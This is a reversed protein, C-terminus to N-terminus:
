IGSKEHLKKLNKSIEEDYTKVGKITQLVLKKKKFIAIFIRQLYFFPLLIPLKKIIPNRVIMYKIPPFTKKLYYKFKSNKFNNMGDKGLVLEIAQEHKISGHTGSEFIYKTMMEELETTEQHNFWKYTLNKFNNAFKLLGIKEFESDIYEFNLEHEYKKLYIWEDFVFRIGIGGVAYHRAVHAVMHIYFDEKSMEYIYPNDTTPTIVDWINQYYDAILEFNGDVMIKHMEVNMYPPKHYEDDTGGIKECSYGLKKLIKNVVKSKNKEYLIDIDSMTRLEISPYLYKIISGKLPMCKIKENSLANLITIKEAEQTATQFLANNYAQKLYMAQKSSMEINYKECAKYLIPLLSHNKCLVILKDLQLKDKQTFEKQNIYDIMLEINEYLM